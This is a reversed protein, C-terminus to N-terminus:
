WDGQFRKACKWSCVKVGYKTLVMIVNSLSEMLEARGNRRFPLDLVSSFAVHFFVNMKNHTASARIVCDNNASLMHVLAKM